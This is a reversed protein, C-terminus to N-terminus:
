QRNWKKASHSHVSSSPYFSSQISIGLNILRVHHLEFGECKTHFASLLQFILIGFPDGFLYWCILSFNANLYTPLYGGALCISGVVGLHSKTHTPLAAAWGTNYQLLTICQKEILCLLNCGYYQRGGPYMLFAGFYISQKDKPTFDTHPHIFPHTFYFQSEMM